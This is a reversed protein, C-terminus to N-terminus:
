SKGTEAAEVLVPTDPLCSQEETLYVQGSRTKKKTPDAVAMPDIVPVPDAVIPQVIPVIKKSGKKRRGDIKVVPIPILAVDNNDNPLDPTPDPIQVPAVPGVDGNDAVVPVNVPIPIAAPVPIPVPPNVIPKPNDFLKKLEELNAEDFEIEKAPLQFVWANDVRGKVPALKDVHVIKSKGRRNMRIEYVVHGLAKIVCFPGDWPIDLKPCRGKKRRPNYLWVPDGAHFRREIAKKNYHHKQVVVSRQLNTRVKNFVYKM